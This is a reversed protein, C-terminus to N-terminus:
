IVENIMNFLSAGGNSADWKGVIFDSIPRSYRGILITNLYKLTNGELLTNPYFYPYNYLNKVSANNTATILVPSIPAPIVKFEFNGGLAQLSM